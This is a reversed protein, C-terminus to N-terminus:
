DSVQSNAPCMAPSLVSRVKPIPACKGGRLMPRKFDLEADLARLPHDIPVHDELRFRYFLEEPANQKGMM